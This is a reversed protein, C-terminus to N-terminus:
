LDWVSKHSKSSWIYWLVPFLGIEGGGQRKIYRPTRYAKEVNRTKRLCHIRHMEQRRSPTSSVSFSITKKRRGCRKMMDAQLFVYPSFTLFHSRSNRREVTVFVTDALFSLFHFSNKKKESLFLFTHRMRRSLSSSYIFWPIVCLALRFSMKLSLCMGFVGFVWIRWFVFLSLLFSILVFPTCM